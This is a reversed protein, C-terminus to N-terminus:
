DKVLVGNTNNRQTSIISEVKNKGGLNFDTIAFVLLGIFLIPIFLKKIIKKM